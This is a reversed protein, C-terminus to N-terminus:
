TLGTWCFVPKQDFLGFVGASVSLLCGDGGMAAAELGLTVGGALEVEEENARNRDRGCFSL